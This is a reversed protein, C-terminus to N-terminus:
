YEMMLKKDICIMDKIKKETLSCADDIQKM